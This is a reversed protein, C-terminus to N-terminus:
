GESPKLGESPKRRFIDNVTGFWRWQAQKYFIAIVYGNDNRVQKLM